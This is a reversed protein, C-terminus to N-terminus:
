PAFPQSKRLEERVEALKKQDQEQLATFDVSKEPPSTKPPTQDGQQTASAADSHGRRTHSQVTNDGQQAQKGADSHGRRSSTNTSDSQSGNSNNGQVDKLSPKRQDGLEVSKDTEPKEIPNRVPDFTEKGKAQNEIKKATKEIPPTYGLGEGM